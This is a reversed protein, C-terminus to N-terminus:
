PRRTSWRGCVCASTPTDCSSPASSSFWYSASTCSSRIWPSPCTSSGSYESLAPAIGPALLIPNDGFLLSTVAPLAVAVGVTAVIKIVPSALRLFRFLMLYLLLGIVPGAVFVSLVTAPVIAVRHTSHLFYYFRAVSFATAGFSFNLIGASLYTVVLGSAAMAYLSGFVLGAIVFQLM